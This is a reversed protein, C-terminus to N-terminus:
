AADLISSQCCIYRSSCTLEQWLLMNSAAPTRSGDRYIICMQLVFKKQKLSLDNLFSLFPMKWAAQKKIYMNLHNIGDYVGVWSAPAHIQPTVLTFKQHLHTSMFHNKFVHVGTGIILNINFNNVNYVIMHVQGELFTFWPRLSEGYLTNNVNKFLYTDRDSPTCYWFSVM